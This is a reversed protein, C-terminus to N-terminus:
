IGSEVLVEQLAELSVPKVLHGDFGAAASKRRDEDQGWGTLAIVLPRRGGRQDRLTRCVDYGSMGPLGIDLLVVDPEYASAKEIADPGDQAVTAENGVAQLLMALGTAADENDDVVLVRRAQSKARSCAEMPAGSPEGHEVLAPLRVVFESGQDVGASRATVTGGHMDVLRHVLHLGIGLGTSSRDGSPNEGSFMQFVGSLRSAPIGVGDDRVTVVAESGNVTGEVVVHGGGRTYKCANNLLNGFLQALRVPDADLLIPQPPLSVTLEHQAKEILPACTEVATRIVRALEVKEKRLELKGNAIRGADLLDDLLRAMHSVQRDIVGRCKALRSGAPVDLKMLEAASRIPALPNRLEHALVALFEDKRRDAERLSQESSHLAAHAESRRRAERRITNGTLWLLLLFLAIEVLTRLASGFAGDHAGAREGQVGVFGIAIPILVLAPVIRRLLAGAPGADLILRMPDREYSGVILGLSVAFIFTATQLSIATTFPLSYLSKAGYLYGVLPLSAIGATTLGFFTVSASRAPNEAWSARVLAVGIITWSIASPPGMRGAYAVSVRGWTRDFMSPTDVGLNIQLWHQLIATGGLLAVLAGLAKTWRRYGRTLAILGAGASMAALAANPKIAIGSGDWNALRPVDCAWGLFSVLGGLFAYGGLAAVIRRVITVCSTFGGDNSRSVATCIEGTEEHTL